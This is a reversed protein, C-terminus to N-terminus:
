LFNEEEDETVVEEPQSEPDGFIREWESRITEMLEPSIEEVAPSQRTLVTISDKNYMSTKYTCTYLIAYQDYDTSVVQFNNEFKKLPKLSGQGVWLAGNSTGKDFFGRYNQLNDTIGALGKYSTEIDFHDMKKSYKELRKTMAPHTGTLRDIYIV